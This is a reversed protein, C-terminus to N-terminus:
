YGGAVEGLSFLADDIRADLQMTHITRTSMLRGGIYTSQQFPLVLDQVKRYDSLDTYEDIQHVRVPGPPHMNSIRLLFHTEVDIFFTTETIHPDLIKYGSDGLQSVSICVVHALHGNITQDRLLTITTHPSNWEALLSFIPFFNPRARLVQVFPPHHDPGKSHTAIRKGQDIAYSHKSSSNEWDVRFRTTGKAWLTEKRPEHPEREDIVTASATATTHSVVGDTAGMAALTQIVYHRATPNQLVPATQASALPLLSLTAALSVLGWCLRVVRISPLYKLLRENKPM